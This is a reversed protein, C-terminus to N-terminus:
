RRGKKRGVKVGCEKLTERLSDATATGMPGVEDSTLCMGDQAFVLCSPDGLPTTKTPGVYATARVMTRVYKLPRGQKHFRLSGSIQMRLLHWGKLRKDPPQGPEFKLTERRTPM